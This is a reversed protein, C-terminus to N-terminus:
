RASQLASNLQHRFTAPFTIAASHLKHWLSKSDIPRLSKSWCEFVSLLTCSVFIWGRGSKQTGYKNADNNGVRCGNTWVPSNTLLLCLRHRWPLKNSPHGGLFVLRVATALHISLSSCCGARNSPSWDILWDFPLILTVCLLSEIAPGSYLVTAFLFLLHVPNSNYSVSNKLSSTLRSYLRSGTRTAFQRLIM